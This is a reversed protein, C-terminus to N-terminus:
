STPTATDNVPKTPPIGYLLFLQQFIQKFVPGAASEGWPTNKPRDIKVLLVFQPDDSPGYGLLSGITANPDYGGSPSPIQATGSKAAIDYGPVSYKVYTTNMVITLMQTITKSTQESIVRHVPKPDIAKVQGNSDKITKAVHPTMLIGGNALVSAANVLQIPTVALGQGFASTYFNAESWDSQGPLPLIGASEGQLDIGTPQGIGFSVLGRYFRDEGVLETVWMAGLNSSHQLVQTMTEPGFDVNLANHVEAGGPIIKYPGGNHVTNPTVVGTELGLSMTLTKFTSGPEYATSIAPNDFLSANTVTDFSNPDFSPRNAMGLIEGTKPNQVIITGGAAQQVAMAQDLAKEIIWQVSADLSLTVDAGNIPPDWVSKALAIVNGSGDREGILKGPTGGITKNYAGEIGYSGQGQYNVFGLVQSAFDGMPYIRRPESQLVLGPLKLDTIKQSADTSLQRQLVVWEKGPQTIAAYIDDSTRGILPSLLQATQRPNVLQNVIASVTDAPVNTALEIDRADYINGRQAQVPTDQLRFAVAQESLTQSRVVQFSFIRYGIALCFMLFGAFLSLIRRRPIRYDMM